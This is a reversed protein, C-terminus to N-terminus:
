DDNVLCKHKIALKRIAVGRFYMCEKSQGHRLRTICPQPANVQRGVEADSMIEYLKSLTKQFNM